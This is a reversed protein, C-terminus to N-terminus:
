FSEFFPSQQDSRAREREQKLFVPFVTLMLGMFVGITGIILFISVLIAYSILFENTQNYYQLTFIGFYIGALILAFSPLSIFALPRKIAILNILYRLVSLGHAAPNKTSTRKLDEYRCSVRINVMKLGLEHAKILQESEIGFSHEKLTPTLQQIAKQNFARFGCQSDTVFGGNGMSTTYDLLRKGIKRWKPMETTNGFRFGLSIDAEDMRISDLLAPIEEPNHQGDGDLTVIYKYGKQLAYHFGTKIAAGKGRNTTHSLVTAGAAQAIAITSDTSGDDVVLVEDVYHRTKLVMSGISAEENLCPIIALVYTKTKDPNSATQCLPMMPEM